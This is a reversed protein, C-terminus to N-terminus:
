GNTRATPASSKLPTLPKREREMLPKLFLATGDSNEVAYARLHDLGPQASTCLRKLDAKQEDSFRSGYQNLIAQIRSEVEAQGEPSLKPLDAPQQVEAPFTASILLSASAVSVAASALAAHRAFDRRSIALSKPESMQM